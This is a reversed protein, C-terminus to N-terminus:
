HSENKKEMKLQQRFKWLKAFYDLTDSFIRVTSHKFPKRVFLTPIEAIKLGAQHSRIMIETDWFWGPDKTKELVPIIRKRRFFKCGTETDEFPIKLLWRSFWSYGKSLIHRHMTRLTLRYIRRATAGDFGKLIALYMSLIAIAPIELDIDIFGVVDGNSALFGDTVAKGRGKNQEHFIARAKPNKKVFGEVLRRTDDQSKDEVFVIEYSVRSLDLLQTIERMSEEFVESENYCALVLSLQTM